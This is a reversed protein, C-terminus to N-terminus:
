ALLLRKSESLDLFNKPSKLHKMLIENCNPFQFMRLGKSKLTMTLTGSQAEVM